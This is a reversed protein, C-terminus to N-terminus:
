GCPEPRRGARGASSPKGICYEPAAWNNGARGTERESEPRKKRGAPERERELVTPADLADLLASRELRLYLLQKGWREPRPVAMAEEVDEAEPVTRAAGVETAELAATATGVEEAELTAMATWVEGAETVTRAIGVEVAEPVTRATGVEGAVLAAM